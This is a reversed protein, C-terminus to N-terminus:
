SKAQDDGSALFDLFGDCFQRRIRIDKRSMTSRDKFSSQIITFCIYIWTPETNSSRVARPLMSLQGIDIPTKKNKKKLFFKTFLLIVDILWWCGCACSRM